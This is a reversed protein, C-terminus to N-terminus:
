FPLIGLEIELKQKERYLKDNEKQLEEVETMLREIKTKDDIGKEYATGVYSLDVLFDLVDPEDVKYDNGNEKAKIKGENIWQRVDEEDCEIEYNHLLKITELLTMYGDIM